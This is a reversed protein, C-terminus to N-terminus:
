EPGYGGGGPTEIRLVDGADVNISVKGGIVEFDESGKKKLLNRGKAGDHGGGL